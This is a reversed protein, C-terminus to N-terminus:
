LQGRDWALHLFFPTRGAQDAHPHGLHAPPQRQRQRRAPAEDPTTTTSGLWPSALGTGGSGDDRV